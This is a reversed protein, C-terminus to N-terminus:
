IDFGEALMKAKSFIREQIEEASEQKVPKEADEFLERYKVNFMQRSEDNEGGAVIHQIFFLSDTVYM